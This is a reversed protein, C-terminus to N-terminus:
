YGEGAAVAAVFEKFDRGLVRVEDQWDGAFVFPISVYDGGVLGYATPGGNSGILFRDPRFPFLDYDAGQLLEAISWLILYGMGVDDNFGDSRMLFVRLDEPLKIGLRAQCAAVEAPAAGCPKLGHRLIHLTPSEQM